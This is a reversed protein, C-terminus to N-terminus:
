ATALTLLFIGGRFCFIKGALIDLIRLFERTLLQPLRPLCQVLSCAYFSFKCSLSFFVISFDLLFAFLGCIRKDRLPCRM